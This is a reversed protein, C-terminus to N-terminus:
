IALARSSGSRGQQAMVDLVDWCSRKRMPPSLPLCPRTQCKRRLNHAGAVALLLNDAGNSDVDIRDAHVDVRDTGLCSPGRYLFLCREAASSPWVNSVRRWAAYHLDGIGLRGGLNQSLPGKGLREAEDHGTCTFDRLIDEGQVMGEAFEFFCSVRIRMGRM